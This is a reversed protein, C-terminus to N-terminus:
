DDISREINDQKIKSLRVEARDRARAELMDRIHCEVQTLVVQGTQHRLASITEVCERLMRGCDDPQIDFMAVDTYIEALEDPDQLVAEQEDDLLMQYEEERTDLPDNM